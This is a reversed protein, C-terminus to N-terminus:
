FLNALDIDRESADIWAIVADGDLFEIRELERNFRLAIGANGDLEFRAGGNMRLSNDGLDIGTDFQGRLWIGRRGHTHRDFEIGTRYYGAGPMGSLRFGTLWGGDMGSEWWPHSEPLPGTQVQLGVNGRHAKNQVNLGVLHARQEGLDYTEINSGITPGDGFAFVDAHYATSWGSGRNWLNVSSGIGDGHDHNTDLNVFLSWPFSLSGPEVDNQHQLSMLMHTFAADDPNAADNFRRYDLPANVPAFRDPDPETRAADDVYLASQPGIEVHPWDPIPFDAAAWTLGGVLVLAAVPLARRYCRLPDIGCAGQDRVFADLDARAIRNQGGIRFSKLGGADIETEIETVSVRLLRSAENLTLVKSGFM